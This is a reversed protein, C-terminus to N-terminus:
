FYYVAIALSLLGVVLKGDVPVRCEDKVGPVFWATQDDLPHACVAFGFTSPGAQEIERYTKSGDVSHFVGNHHQVWMFNQEITVMSNADPLSLEVKASKTRRLRENYFLQGLQKVGQVPKALSVIPVITRCHKSPNSMCYRKGM